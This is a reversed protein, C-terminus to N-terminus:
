RRAAARARATRRKAPAKAAKKSAGRAKAKAAPVFTPHRPEYLGMEGGGPIRLSVLLGWGHDKVPGTFEVGKKKLDAVTEQVDDCMLYLEHTGNESGDMTPHVGLEAPPLRFILWGEGADVNAM